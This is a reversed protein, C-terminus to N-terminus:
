ELQNFGSLMKVKPVLFYLFIDELLGQYVKEEYVINLKVEMDIKVEWGM